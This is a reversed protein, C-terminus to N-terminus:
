SGDVAEPPPPLAGPPIDANFEVWDFRLTAERTGHVARIRTPWVTDDIVRYRELTLSTAGPEGAPEDADEWEVRVGRTTLTARDIECLLRVGGSTAGRVVLTQNSTSPHEVARSLFEADTSLLAHRLSQVGEILGEEKVRKDLTARVEEGQLLIDAASRGLKWARIRFQDPRRAVVAVELTVVGQEPSRVTLTGSGSFSRLTSSRQALVAMSEAAGMVPYHQLPHSCATLLPVLVGIAARAALTFKPGSLATM